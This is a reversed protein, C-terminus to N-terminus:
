YFHHLGIFLELFGAATEKTKLMSKVKELDCGVSVRIPYSPLSSFFMEGEFGASCFFETSQSDYNILLAADFFPTLYFKVFDFTNDAVLRLDLNLVAAFNSNFVSLSKDDNNRIGRMYEGLYTVEKTNSFNFGYGNYKDEDELNDPRFLGFARDAVAVNLRLSPNFMKLAFPFWVFEGKARLYNEKASTKDSLDSLVSIQGEALINYSFGKRFDDFIYNVNSVETSAAVKFGVSTSEDEFDVSNFEGVSFSFDSFLFKVNEELTIDKLFDSDPRRNMTLSVSPEIWKLLNYFAKFSFGYHPDKFEIEEEEKLYNFFSVDLGFKKYNIGSDFGYKKIGVSSPLNLDGENIDIVTDLNQPAIYLYPNFHFTILNGLPVKQFGVLFGLASEDFGSFNGEFEIASSFKSAGLDMEALSVSGSVKSSDKWDDNGFDLQADISTNIITEGIRLDDLEFSIDAGTSTFDLANEDNGETRQVLDITFDMEGLTGLFNTDKAKLKLSLGENSDYKPYPLIIFTASTKMRIFVDWNDQSTEKYEVDVSKFIRSNVLQQKFFEAERKLSIYNDYKRESPIDYKSALAIESTLGTADLIYHATVTAEVSFVVTVLLILVLFKRKM